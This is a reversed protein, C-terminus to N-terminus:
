NSSLELEEQEAQQQAQPSAELEICPADTLVEGGSILLGVAWLELKLSQRYEEYVSAPSPELEDTMGDLMDQYRRRTGDASPIRKLFLPDDMCCRMVALERWSLPEAALHRLHLGDFLGSPLVEGGHPRCEVEARWLPADGIEALLEDDEYGKDERERRKDYIRTYRAGKRSGFTWGTLNKGSGYTAAKLLTEHDASCDGLHLMYDIAVDVRTWVVSDAYVFAALEQLAEAPVKQPNFDFRLKIGNGAGAGSARDGIEMLGCNAFKASQRFTPTRSNGLDSIYNSTRIWREFMKLNEPRVRCVFSLRDICVWVGRSASFRRCVTSNSTARNESRGGVSGAAGLPAAASAGAPSAGSGGDSLGVSGDGVESSTACILRNPTTDAVSGGGFTEAAFGGHPAEAKEATM